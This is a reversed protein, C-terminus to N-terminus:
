KAEKHEKIRNEWRRKKIDIRHRLEEPNNEIAGEVLNVCLITDAIEEKLNELLEEETRPTPNEARYKRALKMCAQALETCEEACQELAAPLGIEKVVDM